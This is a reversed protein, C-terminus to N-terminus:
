KIYKKCKLIDEIKNLVENNKAEIIQYVARDAISELINCGTSQISNLLDNVKLRSSIHVESILTGYVSSEVIISQITGGYDVITYMEDKMQESTYCVKFKKTLGSVGTLLYGTSTSIIDYGKARLLAIDQVIVQRSVGYKKSLVNGSVPISQNKLYEFIAQRREIGKLM